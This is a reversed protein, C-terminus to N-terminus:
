PAALVKLRDREREWVERRHVSTSRPAIIGFKVAGASVELVVIRINVLPIEAGSILISESKKRSLVLMRCREIQSSPM